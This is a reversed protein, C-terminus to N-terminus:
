RRVSRSATSPIPEDWCKHFGVAWAPDLAGAAGALRLGEASDRIRGLPSGGRFYAFHLHPPLHKTQLARANGSYGMTGLMDGAAVVSSPRVDVTQLHGYITYGGDLHDIIVTNGLKGWEGATIVKGDAVAFVTEGLSGNLDVAAHIGNKRAAFFGGGESAEADGGRVLAMRGLPCKLDVTLREPLTGAGIPGRAALARARKAPSAAASKALLPDLPTEAIASASGPYSPVGPPATTLSLPQSTEVSSSPRLDAKSAFGLVSLMMLISVFVWVVIRIERTEV